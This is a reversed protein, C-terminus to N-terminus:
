YGHADPYGARKSYHEEIKVGWQALQIIEEDSLIFQQDRM